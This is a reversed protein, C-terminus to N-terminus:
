HFLLIIAYWKCPIDDRQPAFSELRCPEIFEKGTTKAAEEISEKWEDAKRGTWSFLELKRFSVHRTDIYKTQM